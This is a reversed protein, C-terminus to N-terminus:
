FMEGMAQWLVQAVIRPKFLATAPTVLHVVEGFTQYVDPRDVSFQMVRDMYGQM